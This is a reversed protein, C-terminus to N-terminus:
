EKLVVVVLSSHFELTNKLATVIRYQHQIDTRYKVFCIDPRFDVISATLKAGVCCNTMFSHIM